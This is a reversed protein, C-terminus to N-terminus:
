MIILVRWWTIVEVECGEVKPNDNDHSGAGFCCCNYIFLFLPQPEYCM